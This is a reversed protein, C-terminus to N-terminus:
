SGNIAAREIQAWLELARSAVEAVEYGPNSSTLDELHNDIGCDQLLQLFEVLDTSKLEM